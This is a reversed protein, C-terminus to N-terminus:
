EGGVGGGEKSVERDGGVCSHHTDELSTLHVSTGFRLKSPSFGVKTGARIDSRSNTDASIESGSDTIPIYALSLADSCTLWHFM